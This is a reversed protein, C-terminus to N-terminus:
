STKKRIRSMHRGSIGLFSALYHLPVEHLLETETRLLKAYREEPSLTLLDIRYEDILCIQREILSYYLRNFERNTELLHSFDKKGIVLLDCDSIAKISKRSPKRNLFSALSTTISNKLGLYTTKEDGDVLISHQLIGNKILCFNECVEGESVLFHNKKLSLSKFFETQREMFLQLEASEGPNFESLADFFEM